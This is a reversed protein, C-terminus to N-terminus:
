KARQTTRRSTSAGVSKALGVAILVRAHTASVQLKGGVPVGKIPKKTVEIWVKKTIM